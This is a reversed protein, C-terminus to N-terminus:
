ITVHHVPAGVESSPLRMHPDLPVGLPAAGKTPALQTPAPPRCGARNVAAAGSCGWLDPHLHPVRMGASARQLWRPQPPPPCFGLEPFGGHLEPQWRRALLARAAPLSTLASELKEDGWFVRKGEARRTRFPFEFSFRGSACVCGQLGRHGHPCPRREGGSCGWFGQCGVRSWFLCALSPLCPQFCAVADRVELVGFGAHCWFGEGRRSLVRCLAPHGFQRGQCRIGGRGPCRVWPSFVGM